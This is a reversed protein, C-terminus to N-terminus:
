RMWWPGCHAEFGRMKITHEQSFKGYMDCFDKSESPTTPFAIMLFGVVLAASIGACMGNLTTM